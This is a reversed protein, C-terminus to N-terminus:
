LYRRIAQTTVTDPAGDGTSDVRVYDFGGETDFATFTITAVDMPACQVTWLCNSSASYTGTFDIMGGGAMM